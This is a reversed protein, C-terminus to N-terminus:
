AVRFRTLAPTFPLCHEISMTELSIHLDRAATVACGYTEGQLTFVRGLQLHHCGFLFDLIAPIIAM